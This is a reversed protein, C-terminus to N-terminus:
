KLNNLALRAIHKNNESKHWNHAIKMHRSRGGGDQGEGVWVWGCVRWRVGGGRRTKKRNKKVGVTLAGSAELAEFNENGGYEELVACSARIFENITSGYTQVSLMSANTELQIHM